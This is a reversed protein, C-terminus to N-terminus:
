CTYRYYDVNKKKTRVVGRQRSIIPTKRLVKELFELKGGEVGVQIEQKLGDTKNDYRWEEKFWVSVKNKRWRFSNM